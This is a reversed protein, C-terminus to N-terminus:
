FGTIYGVSGLTGGILTSRKVKGFPNFTDKVDNYIQKLRNYRFTIIKSAVKVSTGISRAIAYFGLSAAAAFAYSYNLSMLGIKVAKSSSYAAILSDWISSQTNKGEDIIKDELAM